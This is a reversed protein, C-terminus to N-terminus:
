ERELIDLLDGPHIIKLTLYSGLKLLQKDRTGLFQAHGSLATSLVLDDEPQTAIGVVDFTREVLTADTRLTELALASDSSTVRSSFYPDRWTRDLEGLLHESVVLEFKRARWLSVLRASVGFDSAFGPALVNTDLLVIRM